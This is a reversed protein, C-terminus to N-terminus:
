MSRLSMSISCWQVSCVSTKAQLRPYKSLGAQGSIRESVRKQLVNKDQPRPADATRQQVQKQSVSKVLEATEEPSQPVDEREQPVLLDESIHKRHITEVTKPIKAAIQPVPMDIQEAKLGKGDLDVKTSRVADSVIIIKPVEAEGKQSGGGRTRKRLWGHQETGGLTVTPACHAGVATMLVVNPWKARTLVMQSWRFFPCFLARAQEKVSAQAGCACSKTQGWNSSCVTEVKPVWKAPQPPQPPRAFVRDIRTTGLSVVANTCPQVRASGWRPCPEFPWSEPKVILSFVTTKQGNNCNRTWKPTTLNPHDESRRLKAPEQRVTWITEM